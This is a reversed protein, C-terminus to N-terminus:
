AALAPLQQALPSGRRKLAEMYVHEDYPTRDQWCRWLIRIWKFALARLAAHHGNGRKRMEDYYARAWLSKRISHGAFEHFTQLVFKPAAWRRHVRRSKGSAETVPAIGSYQQLNAATEFRSRDSGLAALLRPAMVAGSGPLCSFLHADPHEDFLEQIRADYARIGKALPRLQEALLKVRMASPE